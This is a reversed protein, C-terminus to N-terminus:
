GSYIIQKGNILFSECRQLSYINDNSYSRSSYGKTIFEISSGFDIYINKDNIKELYAIIINAAPGASVFFLLDNERAEISLKELFPPSFKDWIEVVNDPVPFFKYAWSINKNINSNALLIIKWRKSSNIFKVIWNKFHLYNKNTFLTSYSMYKSSNCKSFSLISKSFKIWNKCPIGIFNNQNSCISSSAILSERFKQNKPNWHWKDISEIYQGRMIYEEGDAFRIFSFPIKCSILSIFFYFEDEYNFPRKRELLKNKIFICTDDNLNIDYSFIQEINIYLHLNDNCNKYNIFFCLLILIFVVFIIKITKDNKNNNYNIIINKTM